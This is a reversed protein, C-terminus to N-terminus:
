VTNRAVKKQLFVYTRPLKFLLIENVIMASKVRLGCIHQLAMFKLVFGHLTM